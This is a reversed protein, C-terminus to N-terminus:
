SGEAEEARVLARNMTRQNIGIAEAFQYMNAGARRLGLMRADMEARLQTLHSKIKKVTYVSEVQEATYGFEELAMDRLLNADVYEDRGLVAGGPNGRTGGHGAHTVGWGGHMDQLANASDTGLSVRHTGTPSVREADYVDTTYSVRKYGSNHGGPPEELLALLEDHQEDNM